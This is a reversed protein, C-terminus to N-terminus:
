RGPVFAPKTESSSKNIERKPLFSRILEYDGNGHDAYMSGKNQKATSLAFGYVDGPFDTNYSVVIEERPAGPEPQVYHLVIYRIPKTM